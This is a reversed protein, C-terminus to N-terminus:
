PNAKSKETFLRQQATSQKIRKRSLECYEESIDIGIYHRDLLAAAVCTTGLGCFPDLVVVGQLSFNRIVLKPLSIPFVAGHILEAEHPRPPALRWINSLSGRTFTASKIERGNRGKEFILILEYASNLVRKNIAPQGYGKDWVVIDKIEKAFKGILRFVAEKSGTVIQINWFVVKAVRLLETLVKEHFRYYDEIPLADDFYVYKKSFHETQKQETYKGNRVRLRMNYPPSTVVLDICGDPWEKMVDVCNGCIISDIPLSM